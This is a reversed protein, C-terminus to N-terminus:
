NFNIWSISPTNFDNDHPIPKGDFLYLDELILMAVNPINNLVDLYKEREGVFEKSIWDEGVKVEFSELFGEPSDVSKYDAPFSDLFFLEYNDRVWPLNGWGAKILSRIDKASDLFADICEENYHDELDTLTNYTHVNQLYKDYLDVIDRGGQEHVWIYDTLTTM